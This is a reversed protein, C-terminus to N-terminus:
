CYQEICHCLRPLAPTVSRTSCLSASNVLTSIQNDLRLHSSAPERLTSDDIKSLLLRDWEAKIQLKTNLIM